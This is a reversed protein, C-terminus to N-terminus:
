ATGRQSAIYILCIKIKEDTGDYRYSRGRRKEDACIKTFYSLKEFHKEQRDIIQPPRMEIALGEDDCLNNVFKSALINALELAMSENQPTKEFWVLCTGNEEGTLSFSILLKPEEMIGSAGAPKVKGLNFFDFGEPFHKDWIDNSSDM